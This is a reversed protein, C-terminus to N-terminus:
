GAVERRIRAMLAANSPFNTARAGNGGAFDSADKLYDRMVENFPGLYTGDVDESFHEKSSSQIGPLAEVDLEHLCLVVLENTSTNV